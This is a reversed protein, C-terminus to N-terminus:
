QENTNVKADKFYKLFRDIVWYNTKVKLTLHGDHKEIEVAGHEKLWDIQYSVAVVERHKLSIQTEVTEFIKGQIKELLNDIGKGTKASISTSNQNTVGLLSSKVKLQVVDILDSKNFVLFVSAPSVNLETLIEISSRYRKHLDEIPQSADVLLIVQTSYALEELTSKFAEIMYAPLRSIFGVTDSLLMKYGNIQVHGMSTTITTFYNEGVEKSDETLRNFLTTKGVGTYGALSIVPMDLRRRRIRYLERRKSAKNLKKKVNTIRRNIAKYYVDVEYKGLGFFGPQEGMKALRVKEKARPMEYTLEALEVQLKAEATTARKSFIELILRERDIIELGTLKALNYLQTSHLMEDYILVDANIEDLLQVLEETKGMGLGYKARLLYRQSITKLVKYGAAKSLGRAEDIIFKDPYTILICSIEKSSAYTNDPHKKM